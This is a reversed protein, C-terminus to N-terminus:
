TSVVGYKKHNCWIGPHEGVKWGQSIGRSECSGPNLTVIVQKAGPRYELISRAEESVASRHGTSGHCSERDKLHNRYASALISTDSGSHRASPVFDTWDPFTPLAATSARCYM